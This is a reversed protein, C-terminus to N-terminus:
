LTGAPKVLVAVNLMSAIWFLYSNLWLDFFVESGPSVYRNRSFDTRTGMKKLAPNKTKFFIGGGRLPFM